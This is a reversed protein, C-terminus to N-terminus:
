DTVTRAISINYRRTVAVSCRHEMEAEAAICRADIYAGNAVFLCLLFHVVRTGLLAGTNANATMHACAPAMEINSFIRHSCNRHYFEESNM